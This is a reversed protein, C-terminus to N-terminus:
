VSARRYPCENRRSRLQSCRLDLLSGLARHTTPVTRHDRRRSNCNQLDRYGCIVLGDDARGPISHHHTRV